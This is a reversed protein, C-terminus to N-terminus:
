QGETELKEEILRCTELLYLNNMAYITDPSPDMHSETQSQDEFSLLEEMIERRLRYLEELTADKYMEAFAEPSIM